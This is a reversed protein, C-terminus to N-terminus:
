DSAAVIEVLFIRLQRLNVAAIWGRHKQAVNDVESESKTVDPVWIGQVEVAVQWGLRQLGM